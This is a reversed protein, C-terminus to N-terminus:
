ISIGPHGALGHDDGRLTGGDALEETAQHIDGGRLQARVGDLRHEVLHGAGRVVDILADHPAHQLCPEALVRGTLRAQAGTEGARQVGHGDVLDAARAKLRHHLGRHGDARALLVADDGAAELVHGAGGVERMDARAHLVARRVELVRHGVVPERARELAPGHAVRRLVDGRLVRDAPLLLVMEAGQAVLPGRLRPLLAPEIALDDGQGALLDAVALDLAGLPADRLVLADAGPRRSLRQALQAGREVLRARDGSPVRALDGVAGGRQEDHALGFGFAMPAVGITRM